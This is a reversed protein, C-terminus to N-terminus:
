RNCGRVGAGLVLRSTSGRLWNTWEESNSSITHPKHEGLLFRDQIPKGVPVRPNKSIKPGHSVEGDTVGQSQGVIVGQHRQISVFIARQERVLGDM